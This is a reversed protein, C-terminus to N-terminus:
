ELPNLPFCLHRGALFVFFRRVRGFADGDRLHGQQAMSVAIEQLTTSGDMRAWVQEEFSGKSFLFVEAGDQLRQVFDDGRLRVDSADMIAPVLDGLERDSLQDLASLKFNRRGRIEAILFFLEDVAQKFFTRRPTSSKM